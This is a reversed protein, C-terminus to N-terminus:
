LIQADKKFSLKKHTEDARRREATITVERGGFVHETHKITYIEFLHKDITKEFM